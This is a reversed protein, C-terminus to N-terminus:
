AADWEDEDEDDWEDVDEVPDRYNLYDEANPTTQLEPREDLYALTAKMLESLWDDYSGDDLIGCEEGAAWLCRVIESVDEGANAILYRAAPNCTEKGYGCGLYDGDNNYRYGIRCVARVIEGAVTDAKGEVPVLEYFLADIREEDTMSMGEQPAPQGAAASDSETQSVPTAAKVALRENEAKFAKRGKSTARIQIYQRADRDFIAFAGSELSGEWEDKLRERVEKLDDTEYENSFVGDAYEFIAYRGSLYDYDFEPAPKQENNTTDTEAKSAPVKVFPMGRRRDEEIEWEAAERVAFVEGRGSYERNYYAEVDEANEAIAMNGQCIGDVIFSVKYTRMKSEEMTETVTQETTTAEPEDNAAEQPADPTEAEPAPQEMRAMFDVAACYAKYENDKYEEFSGRYYIMKPENQTGALQINMSNLEIYFAAYATKQRPMYVNVEVAFDDYGTERSSMVEMRYGPAAKYTGVLFGMIMREYSRENSNLREETIKIKENLKM